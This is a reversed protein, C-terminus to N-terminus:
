QFADCGTEKENENISAYKWDIGSLRNRANIFDGFKLWGTKRDDGCLIKNWAKQVNKKQAATLHWSLPPPDKHQRQYEFVATEINVGQKELWYRRFLDLEVENHSLQGTTRVSLITQLPAYAQYIWGQQVAKGEGTTAGADEGEDARIQILLINKIRKEGSATDAKLAEDLWETLSSIGYNDYYGGDVVHMLHNPSCDTSARPAPTVYPFSASLRAATAVSIDKEAIFDYFNWRGVPKKKYDAVKTATQNLFSQTRQACEEETSCLDTTSILLREGTEAITSNFITAPRWGDRVGLRWESLNKSLGCQNKKFDDPQCEKKIWAEELAEGRGTKFPYFPVFSRTLDPYALGWAVPDLSSEAAYQAIKDLKQKTEDDNGPPLGQFEKKFENVFYMAGVSGGSVSSILRIRNGCGQFEKGYKQKFGDGFKDRCAKEIGSLVRATWAAAQIGGGDASVVIVYDEPTNAEINAASSDPLGARFAQFPSLRKQIGQRDELTLNRVTYFHDTGSTLAAIFLLVALFILSPFRFRDLLFSMGVILWCLITLLLMVYSIATIGIDKQSLYFLYDWGTLRFLYSLIVGIYGIFLYLALFIGLMTIALTHGPRFIARQNEDAMVRGAADYRLYGRGFYKPTRLIRDEVFRPRLWKQFLHFLNSNNNAWNRFAELFPLWRFWTYPFLFNAIHRASKPPFFLRNVVDAVFVLAFATMIGALLGVIRAPANESDGTFIRVVAGSLLILALALAIQLPFTSMAFWKVITRLRRERPETLSPPLLRFWRVRVRGLWACDPEDFGVREGGYLLVLKLTTVISFALLVAFCALWFNKFGTNLDYLNALLTKVPSFLVFPMFLGVVFLIVLPFRALYALHLLTLLRELRM